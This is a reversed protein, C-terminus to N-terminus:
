AVRETRISHRPRTWWAVWGALGISLLPTFIALRMRALIFQSPVAMSYITVVGVLAVVVAASVPDRRFRWLFVLLGPLLAYAMVGDVVYGARRLGTGGSGFGDLWMRPLPAALGLFTAAPVHGLLELASTPIFEDCQRDARLGLLSQDCYRLFDQRSCAIAEFKSDLAAPLLASRRWPVTCVSPVLLDEREVQLTSTASATKRRLAEQQAAGSARIAEAVAPSASRDDYQFADAFGPRIVLLYSLALGLLVAGGPQWLAALRRRDVVCWVVCGALVTSAGLMLPLMLYPRIAALGAFGVLLAAVGALRTSVDPVVRASAVLGTVWLGGFFVAFPERLLESHSFLVLPSCAVPLSALFAAGPARGILLTAITAMLAASLGALVANLVYIVYPSDAGSLYYAVALVKTHLLGPFQDSSLAQWGIARLGDAVEVALSHFFLSDGARQLGHHIHSAPVLVPVVFLRLAATFALQLTAAFAFAALLSSRTTTPLSAIM